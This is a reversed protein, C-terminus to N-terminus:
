YENGAVGMLYIFFIIIGLGVVVDILKRIMKFDLNYGNHYDTWNCTAYKVV